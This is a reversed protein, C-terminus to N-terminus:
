PAKNTEGLEMMISPAVPVDIEFREIQIREVLQGNREITLSWPVVVSPAVERYDGFGFALLGSPGSWQLSVLLQDDRTFEASQLGERSPEVPSVSVRGSKPDTSPHLALDSWASDETIDRALGLPIALVSEPAFRALVERARAPDRAIPEAETRVWAANQATVLTTSDSGPGEVIEVELRVAQGSRYFRNTSILLGDDVPIERRFVLIASDAHAVTDLGGREGGHSRVAGRLLARVDPAKRGDESGPASEAPRVPAATPLGTDLLVTPDGDSQEIVLGRGGAAQISRAVAAGAEYDLAGEVRLLFQWGSGRVFRRVVKVTSGGAELSLGEALDEVAKRDSMPGSEVWVEASAQLPALLMAALALARISHLM